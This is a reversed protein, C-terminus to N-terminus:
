EQVEYIDKRVCFYGQHESSWYLQILQIDGLERIYPAGLVFEDEKYPNQIKDRQLFPYGVLCIGDDPGKWQLNAEGKFVKTENDDRDWVIEAVNPPTSELADRVFTSYHESPPLKILTTSM